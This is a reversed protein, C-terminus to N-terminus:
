SRLINDLWIYVCFVPFLNTQVECNDDLRPIQLQVVENRKAGGEGLKIQFHQPLIWKTNSYDTVM